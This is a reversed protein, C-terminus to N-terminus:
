ANRAAASAWGNLMDTTGVGAVDLARFLGTRELEEIKSLIDLLEQKTNDIAAVTKNTNANDNAIQDRTLQNNLQALQIDASTKAQQQTFQDQAMNMQDQALAIQGQQTILNAQNQDKSLQLQDKQTQQADSQLQALDGRILAEYNNVSGLSTAIDAQVILQDLALKAQDQATKYADRAVVLQDNKVVIDAQSTAQNVKLTDNALRLQDQAVRVALQGDRQDFSFKAQAIALQDQAVRLETATTAKAIDNQAKMIEGQDNIAAVQVDGVAKAVDSQAKIIASQDKISVEISKLEAVQVQATDNLITLQADFLTKQSSEAQSAMSVLDKFRDKLMTAQTATDATVYKAEWEAETWADIAAKNAQVSAIMGSTVTGGDHLTETVLALSNNYDDTAKKMRDSLAQAFEGVANAAQINAQTDAEVAAKNAQYPAVLQQVDGTGTRFAGAVAAFSTKLNDTDQKSLLDFARGVDGAAIAARIQAQTWAQTAAENAQAYRENDAAASDMKQRAETISGGWGMTASIFEDTGAKIAEDLRKKSIDVVTAFDSAARAANLTATDKVDNSKKEAQSYTYVDVAHKGIADSDARTMNGHLVIDEAGKSVANKLDTDAKQKVLDFVASLDHAKTAVLIEADINAEKAAHDKKYAAVATDVAANWAQASRMLTSNMAPGGEGGIGTGGAGPRANTLIMGAVRKMADPLAKTADDMAKIFQDVAVKAKAHSIGVQDELKTTIDSIKKKDNAAVQLAQMDAQTAKGHQIVDLIAQNLAASYAKNADSTLGSVIKEPSVAKQMQKGISNVHENFAKILKAVHEAYAENEKKVHTEANLAAVKNQNTTWAQINAENAKHKADDATRRNQWDTNARNAQDTYVQRMHEAGDSYTKNMIEAHHQYGTLENSYRKNEDAVRQAYAAREAAIKEKDWAPIKNLATQEAAQLSSLTTEHRQQAAQVNMNLTQQSSQWRMILDQFATEFNVLISNLNTEHKQNDSEVKTHYRDNEAKLKQEAEDHIAKLRAMYDSHITALAKEHRINEAAVADNFKQREDALKQTWNAITSDFVGRLSPPLMDITAKMKDIAAQSAALASSATDGPAGKLAATTPAAGPGAASMISSWSPAAFNLQIKKLEPIVAAVMDGIKTVFADKIAQAGSQAKSVMADIASSTQSAMTQWHQQVAQTFAADSVEGRKYSTVLQDFTMRLAAALASLDNKYAESYRKQAAAAKDSAATTQQEIEQAHRMMNAHAEDTKRIDDQQQTFAAHLPGDAAQIAMLAVRVPAPLKSYAAGALDVKDALTKTLGTIEGWVGQGSHMLDVVPKFHNFFNDASKTAADFWGSIARLSESALYLAGQFDEKIRVVLRNIADNLPQVYMYALVGLAVGAGVALVPISVLAAALAAVGTTATSVVPAVKAIAGSSTAVAPAATMSALALARFGNVLGMTAVTDEAASVTNAEEAVTLAAVPPVAAASSAGTAVVQSAVNAISARVGVMEALGLLGLRFFAIGVRAGIVALNMAVIATTVGVLATTVTPSVRALDDFAKMVTSAGTAILSLPGLLATGIVVKLVDFDAGLQKLKYSVTQQTLGFDAAFQDTTAQIQKMKDSYMQLDTILTAVGPGGRSRGFAQVLITGWQNAALGSSKLHSELDALAVPLGGQQMDRALQSSTLGITSLAKAATSSPAEMLALTTRLNTAAKSAPEGNTTLTAIAAGLQIFSVGAVRAANLVGSGMAGVLQELTTKSAGVIANLQSAADTYGKVGIIGSSVVSTVAKVTEALAAHGIASLKAAATLADYSKAANGTASAAYYMGQAMAQPTQAFQTSMELLRDSISGLSTSTLGAQTQILLLSSQFKVAADASVGLFVAGALTGAIAMKSMAAGTLGVQAAIAQLVATAENIARITIRAVLDTSAEM